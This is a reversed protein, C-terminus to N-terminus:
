KLGVLGFLKSQFNMKLTRKVNDTDQNERNDWSIPSFNAFHRNLFFSFSIKIKPRSELVNEIRAKCFIRVSRNKILKNNTHCLNHKELIIV